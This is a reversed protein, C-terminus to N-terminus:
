KKIGLLTLLGKLRKKNLILILADMMRFSIAGDSNVVLNRLPMDTVAQEVMRLATADVSSSFYVKKAIYKVVRYLIRGIWRHRIEGITSNAGYPNDPRREKEPLKRGLLAVFDEDPVTFERTSLDHYTPASERYDPVTVDTRTSEVYVPTSLYISASSSGAMVTFTGSEVHWDAIDVNYYAFARKDLTFSVTRSEGPELYVKAFGKLEKEPRFITSADDRVYLQVIEAGAREGTNEVTVTVDLTKDAKIRDASLTMDRYAFQTYSLGHGFPFLVKTHATDYYRYGVYVSERYEVTKPGEPFYRYCPTDSLSIPFTEALKGSPNIDGMLVDVAAPGGAQGALYCELVAKVKNIWPMAVPAGNQLLVVTNPNANAVATILDIHSQPMDMHIRDFGESEYEKPLGAFIVAADAKQAAQVAEEILAHDPQDSGMPYGPCYTIDMDLSMFADYACELRTPNVLSSGNGQYRPTKAFAGIVAIKAGKALPLIGDENKLLVASQAAAKRALAHHADIDYRCMTNRSEIAKFILSLIRAAATDLVSEKLSGDKIAEVIKKNNIGNSGPMELDMGATLGDVRDNVAGWDSVVMGDYGWEDRLIDTLLKKNESCYAGNLQNYACMVTWPKSQTIVKEFGSLYIERLAREDVEADITLRLTEQNNAAYHKLSTGVGKSQVGDVFASAMEGTLYPDESIYEFNRGCLPSRKINVGPGLLIDVQEQRCEDGLAEGIEHMLERDWSNATAAATPFCIAPLSESQGANEKGPIHKRLGHPGDAMGISPVGLREVSELYWYNKGSCLSAKEELTMADILQQIRSDM